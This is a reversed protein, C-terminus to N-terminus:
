WGPVNALDPRRDLSQVIGEVIKPKRNTLKYFGIIV